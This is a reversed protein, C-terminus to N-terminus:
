FPVEDDALEQEGHAETARLSAERAAESEQAQRWEAESQELRESLIATVEEPHEEVWQLFTETRSRKPSATIGRKVAKWVPLLEPDIDSEVTSDSESAAESRRIGRLASSAKRGTHTQLATLDRTLEIEARLRQEREEIPDVARHRRADYFADVEARLQRAREEGVVQCRDGRVLTTPEIITRARAAKTFPALQKGVARKDAELDAIQERLRSIKQQATRRVGSAYMREAELQRASKNPQLEGLGLDLWAETIQRDDRWEEPHHGMRRLLGKKEMARVTHVTTYWRPLRYPEHGIDKQWRWEIGPTTWFGGPWRELVGDSGPETLKEIVELQALSPGSAM